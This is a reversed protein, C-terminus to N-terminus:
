EEDGNTIENATDSVTSQVRRPETRVEAASGDEPHVACLSGGAGAAPLSITSTRGDTPGDKAPVSDNTWCMDLRAVLPVCGM